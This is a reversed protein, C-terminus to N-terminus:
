APGVEVQLQDCCGALARAALVGVLTRRYDASGRTDSIPQADAAALRGAEEFLDRGPREGVLRQEARSARIPTPAVSALVIRADAITNDPALRIWTGAGAIAIDMERRPTFRLYKAASRPQPPPLELGVLIEDANLVTRGPGKFFQELPLKRRGRAGAVLASAGHCILAPVADASPAGNCVNGGLSARNQIQVGGIMCASDAIAPYARVVAAHRSVLAANAAAGISVGGDPTQAIASLAGIRKLDVVRAARRRGERLQPILDTGGALARADGAAMAAVAEEITEPCAYVFDQLSRSREM